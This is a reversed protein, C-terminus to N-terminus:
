VDHQGGTIFDTSILNKRVTYKLAFLKGSDHYCLFSIICCGCMFFEHQPGFFSRVAISFLIKM